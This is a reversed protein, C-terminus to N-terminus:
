MGRAETKRMELTSISAGMELSDVRFSAQRWIFVVNAHSSKSESEMRMAKAKPEEEVGHEHRAEKRRGQLFSGKCHRM